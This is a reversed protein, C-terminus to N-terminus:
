DFARATDPVTVLGPLRHVAGNAFRTFPSRGGNAFPAFPALGSASGPFCAANEPLASPKVPM